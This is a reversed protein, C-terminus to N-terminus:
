PVGRSVIWPGEFCQPMWICPATRYSSLQARYICSQALNQCSGQVEVSWWGCRHPMFVEPQLPSVFSGQVIEFKWSTTFVRIIVKVLWIMSKRPIYWNQSQDKYEILQKMRMLTMLGCCAISTVLM